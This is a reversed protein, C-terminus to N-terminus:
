KHCINFDFLLVSLRSDLCVRRPGVKIAILSHGVSLYSYSYFHAVMKFLGSCTDYEIIQGGFSNQNLSAKNLSKIHLTSPLPYHSSSGHHYRARRNRPLPEPPPVVDDDDGELYVVLEEVKALIQICREWVFVQM